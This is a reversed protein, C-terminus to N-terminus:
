KHKRFWYSEDFSLIGLDLLLITFWQPMYNKNDKTESESSDAKTNFNLMSLIFKNKFLLAFCTDISLRVINVIKKLSAFIAYTKRTWQSFVVANNSKQNHHKM